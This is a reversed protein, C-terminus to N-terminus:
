TPNVQVKFVFVVGGQPWQAYYAYTHIGDKHPITFESVGTDVLLNERNEFIEVIYGIKKPPREFSLVIRANPPILTPEDVVDIAAVDEYDGASGWHYSAVKAPIIISTGKIEVTSTPLPLHSSGSCAYLTIVLCLFCLLRVTRITKMM